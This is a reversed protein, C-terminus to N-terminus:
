SAVCSSDGEATPRQRDFRVRAEIQRCAITGRSASVRLRDRSRASGRRRARRPRAPSRGSASWGSSPSSRRWRPSPVSPRSTIVSRGAPSRGDLFRDAQQFGRLGDAARHHHRGALRRRDPRHVDPHRPEDRGGRPHVAPRPRGARPTVGGVFIPLTTALPLYVGVAFALASVGALQMVIALVAGLIVLGWPLEKTM